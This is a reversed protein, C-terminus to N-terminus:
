ATSAELQCGQVFRSVEPDWTWWCVHRDLPLAGPNENFGAPRGCHACTGGDVVQDCLRFVARLPDTAAGVEHHNVKGSKVPRGNRVAYGVVVMWVTPQEDDSFRIQVTRAGTRRLVDIAATFRPDDTPLKRTM